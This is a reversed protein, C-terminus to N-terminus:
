HDKYCRYLQVEISQHLAVKVSGKLSYIIMSQQPPPSLPPLPFHAAWRHVLPTLLLLLYCSSRFILHTQDHTPRLWQLRERCSDM